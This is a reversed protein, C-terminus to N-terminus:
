LYLQTIDMCIYDDPTHNCTLWLLLTHKEKNPLGTFWDWSFDTLWITPYNEPLNPIALTCLHWFCNTLVFLFCNWPFYTSRNLSLFTSRDGFFFTFHLRNFFAFLHVKYEASESTKLGKYCKELCKRKKLTGIVAQSLTGVSFHLFTLRTTQWSLSDSLLRFLEFPRSKVLHERLDQWFHEYWHETQLGRFSM